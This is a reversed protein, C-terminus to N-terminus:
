FVKELSLRGRSINSYDQDVTAKEMLLTRVQHATLEPFASMVLAAAGSVFPTSMSTGTLAEYNNGPVTSTIDVGPAFIHVANNSYNSWKFRGAFSDIAGVTISTSTMFSAPYEPADDLNNGANGAATVFLVGASELRLMKALLAKSCVDGGWSANIIRAGRKVAYDIALLADSLSGSGDTDLFKVPLIKVGPAVGLMKNTVLTTERHHAGIIGAVHTGHESNAFVDGKKTIVNYGYYDDVYGNKDDDIGNNPIEGTNIDANEILDKHLIDVGSDVVAVVVGEGWINKQWAYRAGISDIGWNDFDSVDKARIRDSAIPDVHIIRDNEVNEIEGVHSDVFTKIFKEKSESKEVSIKGSKWQVIFQNKMAESNCSKPNENGFVTSGQTARGSNCAPLLSLGLVFYLSSFLTKRSVDM